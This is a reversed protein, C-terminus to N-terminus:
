ITLQSKSNKVNCIVHLNCMIYFIHVQRWADGNDSGKELEILRLVGGTLYSCADETQGGATAEYSLHLKAWAKEFIM